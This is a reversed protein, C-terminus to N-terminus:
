FSNRFIESYNLQLVALQPSESDSVCILEWLQKETSLIAGMTCQYALGEAPNELIGLAWCLRHISVGSTTMEIWRSMAFFVFIDRELHLKGFNICWTASQFRDNFYRLKKFHKLLCLTFATQKGSQRMPQEWQSVKLDQLVTLM